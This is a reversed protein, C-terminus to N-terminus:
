GGVLSSVCGSLGGGLAGLAAGFFGGASGAIAGGGGWIGAQVYCEAETNSLQGGGGYFGATPDYGGGPTAERGSLDVNNSPDGKAYVFRDAQNLDGIHSLSDQQTWRGIRPDYYRQGFHYLGTPDQYGGAFRFPNNAAGSGTSSTVQGYPDYYYAATRNGSADILGTVSGISDHVYYSNSTQGPTNGARAGILNGSPDKTYSTLTGGVTSSALGLVHQTFAASGASLRVTQGADAYSFATGNGGTADTANTTVNATDYTAAFGSSTGTLNGAADFNQTSGGTSTLENAANYSYGPNAGGNVASSTRNGNKDYAYTYDSTATPATVVGTASTLRNLEDHGLTTTKGAVKDTVTQRLDTDITTGPKTYSYALDSLTTSGQVAKVETEHGANDYNFTQLVSGATAEQDRRGSGDYHFLVCGSNASPLAQPSATLSFGSCSGSPETISTVEGASDYGYTITGGPDTLSTLNNTTDYGFSQVTGRFTQSTPRSLGDYGITTSGGDRDSRSILNDDKDYGYSVSTGDSYGVQTIRDLQDYTNTTMHGNGDTVTHPRSDADPGITTKGLPAPPTISTLNGGTYGYSTVNGNADTSTSATGDSNYTVTTKAYSPGPGTVANVNSSSDVGFTTTNNQPDTTSTPQSQAGTTYGGFTTSVPTNSGTAPAQIKSLNRSNDYTLTSAQSLNNTLSMVNGSTPDYSKDRHRGLADTTRLVERQNNFYYKTISGAADTVQTMGVAGSPAGSDTALYAYTTTLTTTGTNRALTSVRGSSDYGITLTRGGPTTVSTLLNSTPDYGYGYGGGAADTFSTLHSVDANYGFSVGRSGATDGLSTLRTKGYAPSTLDTSQVYGFPFSRSQTDAVSSTLSGAGATNTLSIKKGNKTTVSDLLEDGASYAAFRYTLGSDRFTVTDFSGSVNPTTTGLTLTANVGPPAVFNNSGAGAHSFVLAAGGPAFMTVSGQLDVPGGRALYTDQSLTNTWGPSLSGTQSDNNVALLDRALASNYYHSFAASTGTGTVNLEDGRVLLNGTAINVAASAHGTLQQTNFTATSQQGVPPYYDVDIDPPYSSNHSSGFRVLGVTSENTAQLLFGQNSATGNVWSQVVSTGYWSYRGHPYSSSGALNPGASGTWSTAAAPAGGTWGASGSSNWTAATTWSQTNQRLQMSVAGTTALLQYAVLNVQADLVTSDAPIASTSLQLLSRSVGYSNGYNGVDLNANSCYSTTPVGSVIHCDQLASGQPDITPDIVVPFARGPASLWGPKLALTATLGGPGDAVTLGVSDPAGAADPGSDYVYPAPLTFASSGDAATIETGQKGARHTLGPSTAVDFQYSTPAAASALTVLEQVGEPSAAYTLSVGPMVDPYTIANKSVVGTSSHAGRLRFSTWKAGTSIKIPGAAIDAPFTVSYSNAANVYGSGAPGDAVLTDDVQQWAGQSDLYNVPGTSSVLRRSGSPTLFTRSTATRLATLEREGSRTAASPEAGLTSSLDEASARPVRVAGRSGQPSEPLAPAAALGPPPSAPPGASALAAPTAVVVPAGYAVLAALTGVVLTRAPTRLSRSSHM